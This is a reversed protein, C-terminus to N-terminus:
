AGGACEADGLQSGPELKTDHDDEEDFPHAPSLLPPPVGKGAGAGAPPGRAKVAPPEEARYGGPHPGVGSAGAPAAASGAGSAGGDGGGAPPAAEKRKTGAPSAPAPAEDVLRRLDAHARVLTVQLEPSLGGLAQVGLGRLFDDLGGPAAGLSGAAPLSREVELREAELARLQKRHAELVEETATAKAQAARVSERLTALESTHVEISKTAAAVRKEIAALRGEAGLSARAQAQLAQMAALAAVTRSDAAGFTNSLFQWVKNADQIEKSLANGGGPGVSM